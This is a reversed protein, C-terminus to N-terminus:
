EIDQHAQEGFRVAGRCAEEALLAYRRRLRGVDDSM